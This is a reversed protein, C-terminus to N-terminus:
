NELFIEVRRNGAQGTSMFEHYVPRKDSRAEARVQDRAAGLAILAAAVSNARKLSIEFNTLDHTIQDTVATHASAHGVVRITAGRQRRLAVVDRLVARDKRDLRSSSHGFYIVAVLQVGAVSPSAAQPQRNQFQPFRLQTRGGAAQTVPAQAVPAQAVPAQAVPAQAVPAPAIPVPAIPAPTNPAPTNPAQAVPAQPVHIQAVQSQAPEASAVAVAPAPPVRLAATLESGIMPAPPADSVARATDTQAANALIPASGTLKEGSYVANARDAALGAQVEARAEPSLVKPPQNPVSALNPFGTPQTRAQGEALGVKTPAADTAFWGVPDAWDPVASCGGLMGLAALAMAPVGKLGRNRHQRRPLRYDRDPIM